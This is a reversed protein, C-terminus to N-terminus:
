VVTWIKEKWKFKIHESKLKQGHLLLALKQILVNRQKLLGGRDGNERM